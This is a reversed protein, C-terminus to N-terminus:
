FIISKLNQNKKNKFLSFSIKLFLIGGGRLYLIIKPENKLM